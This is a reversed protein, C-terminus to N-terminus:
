PAFDKQKKTERNPIVLSFGWAIVVGGLAGLVAWFGPPALLYTAPPSVVIFYPCHQLLERQLQDRSNEIQLAKQSNESYESYELGIMRESGPRSARLSKLLRRESHALNETADVLEAPQDLQEFAQQYERQRRKELEAILAEGLLEGDGVQQVPFSIRLLTPSLEEYKPKLVCATERLRLDTLGQEAVGPFFDSAEMQRRFWDLPYAWHNFKENLAKTSPSYLVM